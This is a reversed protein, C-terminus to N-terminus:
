RFINDITEEFIKLNSDKIIHIKEYDFGFQKENVICRSLSGIPNLLEKYINQKDIFNSDLGMWQNIGLNYKKVLNLKEKSNGGLFLKSENTIFNKNKLIYNIIYEINNEYIIKHNEFKNDGTGLGLHLNKLELLPNLYNKILKKPNKNNINLVCIGLEIQNNFKKYLNFIEDLFKYTPKTSDKPNKNHDFLYVVDIKSNLIYSVKSNFNSDFFEPPLLLSNKNNM